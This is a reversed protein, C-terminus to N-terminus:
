TQNNSTVAEALFCFLGGVATKKNRPPLSHLAQASWTHSEFPQAYEGLGRRIPWRRRAGARRYAGAARTTGWEPAPPAFIEWRIYRCCGTAGSARCAILIM